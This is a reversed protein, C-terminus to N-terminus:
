HLFKTMSPEPRLGSDVSNLMYKLHCVFIWEVTITSMRKV